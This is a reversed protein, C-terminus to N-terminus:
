VISVDLDKNLAYLVEGGPIDVIGLYNPDSFERFTKFDVSKDKVTANDLNYQYEAICNKITVPGIKRHSNVDGYNYVMVCVTVLLFIVLCLAHLHKMM